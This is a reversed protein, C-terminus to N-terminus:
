ATLAPNSATKHEDPGCASLMCCTLLLTWSCSLYHQLFLNHSM